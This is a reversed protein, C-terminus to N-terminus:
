SFEKRELAMSLEVPMNSQLLLEPYLYGSPMMGVKAFKKTVKELSAWCMKHEVIGTITWM